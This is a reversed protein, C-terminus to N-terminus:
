NKNSQNEKEEDFIKSLTKSLKSIIGTVLANGMMFYRQRESMGINTWNDPFGNLRECEIPTIKRLKKTIFDEIVHSSRNVTSESTLMTRGPKELSDPFDMNGETYFYKEGNPKKREIRKAGKLYNWKNLNEKIFYKDELETEERIEKLTISNVYVPRTDETYIYGDHLIGTNFFKYSFKESIDYIDDSSNFYIKSTKNADTLNSDLKFEDQFFGKNYIWDKPETVTKNLYTNKHFAFIFIRRRRQAFGYEAANIVRWEVSYELDNFAKLMIGFDRGRQTSPSKLLRDVNELLVFPPRKDRLIREIEWWLIGKKGKIGKEGSLGRAVSYDQCPFGGVLLNHDPIDKTKILSINENVHRDSNGFRSNYCEFAPQIKTKPEWQNAFVIDWIDEEIVENNILKANNLGVRFGGVGAFLEVVTKKM